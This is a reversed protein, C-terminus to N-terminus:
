WGDLAKRGRSKKIPSIWNEAIDLREYKEMWERVLAVVVVV